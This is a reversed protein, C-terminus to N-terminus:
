NITPPKEKDISSWKNFIKEMEDMDHQDNLDFAASKNVLFKNVWETFHYFMRKVFPLHWGDNIGQALAWGIDASAGYSLVYYVKAEGDAAVLHIGGKFEKPPVNERSDNITITKKDDDIELEVKFKM